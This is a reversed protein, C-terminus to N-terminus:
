IQTENYVNQIRRLPIVEHHIDDNEVPNRGNPRILDAQVAEEAANIENANEHQQNYRPAMNRMRANRQRIYLFVVILASLAIFLATSIGIMIMALTKFDFNEKRIFELQETSSPLTQNSTEKDNKSSETTATVHKSSKTIAIETMITEPTKFNPKNNRTTQLKHNNLTTKSRDNSALTFTDMENSPTFVHKFLSNRQWPQIIWNCRLLRCRGTDRFFDIVNAKLHSHTLCLAVDTVKKSNLKKVCNDPVKIPPEKWTRKIFFKNGCKPSSPHPLAYAVNKYKKEKAM